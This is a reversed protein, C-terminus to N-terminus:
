EPESEKLEIEVFQEIGFEKAAKQMGEVIYTAQEKSERDFEIHLKMPLLGPREVIGHIIGNLAYEADHGKEDGSWYVKGQRLIWTGWDYLSARIQGNLNVEAEAELKKEKVTQVVQEFLEQSPKRGAENRWIDVRLPLRDKSRILDRVYGVTEEQSSFLKVSDRSTSWDWNFERYPKSYVFVRTVDGIVDLALWSNLAQVPKRQGFTRSRLYVIFTAKSEAATTRITNAMHFAVDKSQEDFEIYVIGPLFGPRKLSCDTIYILCGEPNRVLEPDNKLYAKTGQKLVMDEVYLHRAGEDLYVEVPNMDLKADQVIQDIQKKLEESLEIGARNRWIDLRLPFDEKGKILDRVHAIAEQPSLWGVLRCESKTRGDGGREYYPKSYRFIGVHNGVGAEAGIVDLALWTDLAEVPHKYKAEPVLRMTERLEALQTALKTELEMRALTLETRIAETTRPSEIKKNTEALQANLLKIQLYADTV